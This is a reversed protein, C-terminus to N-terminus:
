LRTRDGGSGVPSLAVAEFLRFGRRVSHAPSGSDLPLKSILEQRVIKDDDTVVVEEDFTNDTIM